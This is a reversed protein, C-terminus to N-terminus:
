RSLTALQGVAMFLIACKVPMDPQELLAAYTELQARHIEAAGHLDEGPHGTKYDIIWRVGDEIFTRDIVHKKIESGSDSLIALEAAAQDRSKLVWQGAESNLTTHLLNEVQQAAQTAINTTYGRQRLWHQMAPVCQAVRSLPWQQLGQQVIIEMYRHALTGIDAEL